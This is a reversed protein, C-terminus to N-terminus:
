SKKRLRVLFDNEAKLYVVKAELYKIKEKDDQWNKKLWGGRKSKGRGDVKLGNAGKEKYIKRWRRISQKPTENGILCIDFGARTFIEQPPVGAQWEKM